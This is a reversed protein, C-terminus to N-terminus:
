KLKPLYSKLMNLLAETKDILKELETKTVDGKKLREEIDNEVRDTAREIAEKNQTAPTKSARKEASAKAKSIRSKEKAILEKCNYGEEDTEDTETPKKAKGKYETGFTDFDEIDSDNEILAESDEDPRLGFIEENEWNKKAYEKSVKNFKFGDSFTIIKDSMDTKREVKKEPVKPMIKSVNAMVQPEAKLKELVKRMTIKQAEPTAPSSIAGELDAIEKKLNKSM